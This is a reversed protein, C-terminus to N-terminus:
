NSRRTPFFTSWSGWDKETAANKTEKKQDGLGMGSRKGAPKSNYEKQSYRVSSKSSEGPETTEKKQPINATGREPIDESAEVWETKVHDRARGQADTM